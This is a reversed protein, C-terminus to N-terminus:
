SDDDYELVIPELLRVGSARGLRWALLGLAGYIVLSGVVSVKVEVVAWSMAGMWGIVWLNAKLVLTALLGAGAGIAWPLLGALLTFLMALPILPLVLLNAALSVLSFYGFGMLLLPLTLLSASMTEIVLGGMVGPEAREYFFRKLVPALLLIGAFSGMSLQWGLDSLYRPQYWLTLAAVYLLLRGPHIERGFHWVLLSIASVIGARVMSPSAGVLAIFCGVLVLSGILTWFRSRRGVKRLSGTLITLNAGSAVVIHTLGTIKLLEALQGSLATKQGLLYGLGLAAEAEPVRERVRGAFWARAMLFQNPPKPKVVEELRGRYMSGSYPGFGEGLKGSVTVVDGREIKQRELQQGSVSLWFWGQPLSVVGDGTAIEVQKLKIKGMGDDAVDVDDFVAGRAVVECGVQDAL